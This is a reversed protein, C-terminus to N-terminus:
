IEKKNKTVLTVVVLEQVVSFHQAVEENAEEEQKKDVVWLGSQRRRVQSYSGHSTFKEGSKDSGEWIYVVWWIGRM